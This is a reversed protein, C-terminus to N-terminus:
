AMLMPFTHYSGFGVVLDPKFSSLIRRSQWIGNAISFANLMLKFPNKSNIFACSTSEIPFSKDDFYRNADLKGGAFHLELGSVATQLQKALALAPYVHGGTGGVTILIKKSM